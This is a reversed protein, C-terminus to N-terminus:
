RVLTYLVFVTDVDDYHGIDMIEFGDKLLLALNDTCNGPQRGPTGSSGQYAAVAFASGGVKCRMMIIESKGPKEMAPAQASSSPSFTMFATIALAVAVVGLLGIRLSRNM